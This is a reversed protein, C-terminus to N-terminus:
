AEYIIGRDADVVIEQGDKLIKTANETGVICPIKFERAVMAAHCLMGGHDTILASIKHMAVVFLPRTMQTVIIDGQNVKLLTKMMSEDGPEDPVIKVRGRVNGPCATRGTLLINGM